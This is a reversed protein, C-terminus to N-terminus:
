DSRRTSPSAAYISLIFTPLWVLVEGAFLYLAHRANKEALYDHIDYVAIGSIIACLVVIILAYQCRRSMAILAPLWILIQVVWETTKM